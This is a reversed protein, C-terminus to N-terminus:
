VAPLWRLFTAVPYGERAQYDAEVSHAIEKPPNSGFSGVLFDKSLRELVAVAHHGYEDTTSARYVILDGPQAQAATVEVCHALFSGTNGQGDFNLGSPDPLNKWRAVLICSGSCDTKVIVTTEFPPLDLPIPRDEAYDTPVTAIFKRWGDVYSGRQRAGAVQLAKKAMLAALEPTFFPRLKEHAQLTYEPDHLLGVSLKWRSLDAGATKAAFSNTKLNMGHAGGLAIALAGKVARCDIGSDGPGFPRPFPITGSKM